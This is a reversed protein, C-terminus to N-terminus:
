AEWKSSNLPHCPVSIKTRSAPVRINMDLLATSIMLMGKVSALQPFLSSSTERSARGGECHLVGHCQAAAYFRDEGLILQLRGSCLLWRESFFRALESTSAQREAVDRGILIVGDLRDKNKQRACFLFSRYFRACWHGQLEKNLCEEKSLKKVVFGDVDHTKASPTYCM